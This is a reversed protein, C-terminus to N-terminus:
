VVRRGSLVSAYSEGSSRSNDLRNPEKGRWGSLDLSREIRREM